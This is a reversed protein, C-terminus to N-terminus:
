PIVKFINTDGKIVSTQGAMLYFTTVLVEEPAMNDAEKYVPTPILLHRPVGLIRHLYKASTICQETCSWDVM